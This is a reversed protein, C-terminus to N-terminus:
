HTPTEIQRLAEEILRDNDASTLNRQIIRSAIAVSLDVAEKRIQQIARGTELQIDRQANKMLQEAEARARVTLEERVREADRRAEEIITLAEARASQVKALYEKLQADAEARDRKADSLSRHIYDERQQLLSLIPTWALKGLVVVVVVFIVLTWVANGVDGAFPSLVPEAAPQAVAPVAAGMLLLVFALLRHRM